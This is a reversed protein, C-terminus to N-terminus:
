SDPHKPKNNWIQRAIRWKHDHQLNLLFLATFYIHVVEGPLIPMLVGRVTSIVYGSDDGTLKSESPTLTLEFKFKKFNAGQAESIAHIGVRNPADPPMWIANATFLAAYAAIDGANVAEQYKSIVDILSDACKM